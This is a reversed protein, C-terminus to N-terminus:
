EESLYTVPRTYKLAELVADWRAKMDSEPDLVLVPCFGADLYTKIAALRFDDTTLVTHTCGLAALQELSHALMAHGIGKGRVCPDAAVMHVYGQAGHCVAATTAVLKGSSVQQVFFLDRPPILDQYEVISREFWVADKEPILTDYCLELWANVQEKQGSYSVFVYGVPLQRSLIPRGDRRMHLQKM